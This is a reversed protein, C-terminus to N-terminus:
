YIKNNNIVPCVITGINKYEGQVLIDNNLSDELSTDAYSNTVIMSEDLRNNINPFYFGDDEEDDDKEHENNLWNSKQM